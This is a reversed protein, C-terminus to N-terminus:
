RMRDLAAGLPDGGPHHASENIASEQRARAQEAASDEIRKMAAANRDARIMAESVAANSAARDTEIATREGNGVWSRVFAILIAIVIVAIIGGIAWRILRTRDPLM